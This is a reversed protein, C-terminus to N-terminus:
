VSGGRAEPGPAALPMEQSLPNGPARFNLRLGDDSCWKGGYTHKRAHFRDLSYQLRERLIRLKEESWGDKTRRDKNFIYGCLGCADDHYVLRLGRSRKRAQFLHEARKPFSSSPEPPVHARISAHAFGRKM